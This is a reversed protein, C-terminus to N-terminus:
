LQLVLIKFGGKGKFTKNDQRAQCLLSESGRDSVEEDSNKSGEESFAVIQKM